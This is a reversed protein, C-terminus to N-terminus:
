INNSKGILFLLLLTFYPLNTSWLWDILGGGSLVVTFLGKEKCFKASLHATYKAIAVSLEDKTQFVHWKRQRAEAM